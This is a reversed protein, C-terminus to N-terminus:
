KTCLTDEPEGVPIGWAALQARARQLLAPMAASAEASLATEMEVRAPQIGLAILERPLAGRLEALALVDRLDIQHPSLKVEFYRPVQDGVLELLAGPAANCDIADLLLVRDAAEIVPLLNMGWTGGDVLELGSPPVLARLGELAVLGLGDDGMLPSGLGIVVTPVRGPEPSPM